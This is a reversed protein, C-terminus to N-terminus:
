RKLAQLEIEKGSLGFRVATKEIQNVSLTPLTKGDPTHTTSAQQQLYPLLDEAM